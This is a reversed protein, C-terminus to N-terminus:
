FVLGRRVASLALEAPSHVDLKEMIHARHTEVTHLSLSLRAAVEKNSNGEALLQYIQRERQTLLEYRDDVQRSKVDRSYRDQILKAIAPSFFSEGKHVQEIAQILEEEVADKLLYGRAGARVSQTVYREDSHMSLILVATQPSARLIQATAEIGNLEKMGVDVVAVDPQHLRALEVAELGSVAEAVVVMGPRSELIRRLGQRLLTHDDALEVRIPPAPM